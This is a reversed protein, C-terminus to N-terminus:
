DWSIIKTEKKFRNESFLSGYALCKWNLFIM